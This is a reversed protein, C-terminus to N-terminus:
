TADRGAWGLFRMQASADAPVDVAPGFVKGGRVHEDPIVDIVQHAFTMAEEPITVDAGASRALDWGHLFYDVSPFSLGDGISRKGMPSDVMTDLDVGRVAEKAPGVMGAWWAAPDGTVASRPPDPAGSFDMREGRLLTTGFETAFGVHGLVDLGCWGDCPSPREWGDAPVLEVAATFFDLGKIFAIDPSWTM